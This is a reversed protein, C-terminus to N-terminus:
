SVSWKSGTYTVVFAAFNTNIVLTPIGDINNGNGGITINFSSATGNIDKFEYTDGLTPSAPLTITYISSATVALFDDTVLVQYTTSVPTVHRRRGVKFAFKNLDIFASPVGNVRFDYYGDVATDFIHGKNIASLGHTIRDYGDVGLLKLDNTNAFNRSTIIDTAVNATQTNRINGISAPTAGSRIYGDGIQIKNSIANVKFDYVSNAATDFIFGSNSVDGVLIKNTSNTGILHISALPATAPNRASSLVWTNNPVRLYGDIAAPLSTTGGVSFYPGYGDVGFEGINNTISGAEFFIRGNRLYPTSTLSDIPVVSTGIGSKFILNGGITTTGTANQSQITLNNATAGNTISNRQRITPNIVNFQDSYGDLGNFSLTGLTFSAQNNYGDLLVRTTGGTQLRIYGDGEFNTRTGTGSTLNLSGGITTTGTTNQAQITMLQGTIANTIDNRQRIIPSTVAAADFTNDLGNFALISLTQTIRSATADIFLRDITGTQLRVYGDLSHSAAPASELVANGGGSSLRLDGGFRTVVNAKQAKILMPQANVSLVTQDQIINPTAVSSYFRVTPSIIQISDPNSSSNDPFDATVPVASGFVRIKPVNNIRLDVYGDASLGHGSSVITSGGIGGISTTEQARFTLNQGNGISTNFQSIIPSPATNEFNEYTIGGINGVRLLNVSNVQFIHEYGDAVNFRIGSNVADGLVILNGSTSSLASIDSSNLLNRFTIIPTANSNRIFGSLASNSGDRIYGDVRLNAPIYIQNGPASGLRVRNLNDQGILYGDSTNTDNRSVLFQNNPIRIIGSQAPNTGIEMYGDISLSGMGVPLAAGITQGNGNTNYAFLWKLANEAWFLTAYDRPTIGNSSGRVISLGTLYSPVPIPPGPPTAHLWDYSNLHFFYGDNGTGGIATLSEFPKLFNDVKSTITKNVTINTINASSYPSPVYIALSDPTDNVVWDVYGVAGPTGINYGRMYYQIAM